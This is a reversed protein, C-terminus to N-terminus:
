QEYGVIDNAPLVRKLIKRRKAPDEPLKEKVHEIEKKQSLKEMHRKRKAIVEGVPLQRHNAISRIEPFAKYKEKLTDEYKMKEKEPPALPRLPKSAQTKWMRINTDDSGSYVFTSDASFMVSFIRNMRSTHYVERSKPAEVYELPFIRLHKDYSGTVFETGAPSYDIDIVANTHDEHKLIYSKMNRMDFTYCNSDENAVTFIFAERPNWSLSNTKMRLYLKKLPTNQRSDIVYIGRDEACCAMLHTEIPNCRVRKVTDNGWSFTNTPKSRNHDWLQVREGASTAFVPSHLRHDLSTFNNQYTIVTTAQEDGDLTTFDDASLAWIKIINDGCSVLLNGSSDVAVGRVFGNFARTQWTTKKAAVDWIRIEGDCGGSIICNQRTTHRSMTNVGDIHGSLAGVFPKAFIKDKKVSNLARVYERAGQFPHLKPDLNHQTKVGGLKHQAYEQPDRSIVKVKM